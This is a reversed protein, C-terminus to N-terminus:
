KLIQVKYLIPELILNKELYEIPNAIINIVKGKRDRVDSVQVLYLYSDEAHKKLTNIENQTIYFCNTNKTSAKVEIYRVKSKIPHSWIDFGAAANRRSVHDIWKEPNKINLSKLRELEFQYAILEGIRGIKNQLNLRKSLEEPSINRKTTKKENQTINESKVSLISIKNLNQSPFFSTFWHEFKNRIEISISRIPIWKKGTRKSIYEQTTTGNTNYRFESIYDSVSINQFACFKSLGFYHKNGKKLHVFYKPHNGVAERWYEPEEMFTTVSDVLESSNKIFKNM